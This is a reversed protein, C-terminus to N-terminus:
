RGARRAREAAEAARKRELEECAREAEEFAREPASDGFGFRGHIRRHRGGQRKLGGDAREVYQFIGLSFRQQGPALSRIRGRRWSHPFEVQICAGDFDFRRVAPEIGRLGRISV